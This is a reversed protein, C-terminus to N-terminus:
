PTGYRYVITRAREPGSSPFSAVVTARDPVHVPGSNATELDVGWTPRGVSLRTSLPCTEQIPTTPAGYAIWGFCTEVVDGPEVRRGLYRGAAWRTGELRENADVRHGVAVVNAARWGGAVIPVAVLAAALGWAVRAIRPDGFRDALLAPASVVFLAAGVALLPYLITVYWGYSDGLDVISFVALHLCAWTVIAVITVARPPALRMARPVTLLALLTLLLLGLTRDAGLTRLVWLPDAHYSPNQVTTLKQTASYPIPSGFYWTAFVFWPAAIALAVVGLKVPLRRHVLGVAVVLAVALLGADLKDVVALGLVVGALVQRDTVVFVLALLGLVVALSSEMGSLANLRFDASSVLLAAALAACWLGALRNGLWAVLGCAAAYCAVGVGSAARELDLGLRSLAALVLTYLPASAGNTRDGDNYTFGHGHAIRWAYRFAIAADDFLYVRVDRVAVLAGVVVACGVVVWPAPVPGVRRAVPVSADIAM